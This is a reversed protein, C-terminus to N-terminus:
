RCIPLAAPQDGDTGSGIAAQEADQAVQNSETTQPIRLTETVNSQVAGGTPLSPSSSSPPGPGFYTVNFGAGPAAATGGPFPGSFIDGVFFGTNGSSLTGDVGNVAYGFSTLNPDTFTVNISTPSAAQIRAFGGSGGGGTNM